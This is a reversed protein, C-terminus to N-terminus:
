QGLLRIRFTETVSYFFSHIWVDAVANKNQILFGSKLLDM